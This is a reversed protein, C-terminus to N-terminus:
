RFTGPLEFLVPKVYYPVMLIWFFIVNQFVKLIGLFEWDLGIRESPRLYHKKGADQTVDRECVFRYVEV